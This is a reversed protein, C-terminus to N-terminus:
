GVRLLPEYELVARVMIPQFPFRRYGESLAEARNDWVGIVQDGKILVHRGTHGAALLEPVRERYTEQEVALVHEAPLRSLQTYHITNPPREDM